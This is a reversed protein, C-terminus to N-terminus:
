QGVDAGSSRVTMQTVASALPQPFGAPLSSWLPFVSPRRTRSSGVGPAARGHPVPTRLRGWRGVAIRERRADPVQIRQGVGVQGRDAGPQRDPRRCPPRFPPGRPQRDLQRLRLELRDAVMDPQEEGPVLRDVQAPDPHRLHDRPLVHEVTQGRDGKQPPGADVLEDVDAAAASVRAQRERQGQRRAPRDQDLRYALLRAEEDRGHRSRAEGVADLHGGDPGLRKRRVRGM